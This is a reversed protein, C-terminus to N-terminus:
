NRFFSTPLFCGFPYRKKAWALEEAESMMLLRWRETNPAQDLGLAFILCLALIQSAPLVFVPAAAEASAPRTANSTSSFRGPDPGSSHESTQPDQLNQISLTTLRTRRAFGPLNITSVEMELRVAPDPPHDPHHYSSRIQTGLSSLPMILAEIFRVCLHFPHVSRSPCSSCMRGQLLSM